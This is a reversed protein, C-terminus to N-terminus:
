NHPFTFLLYDTNVYTPHYTSVHIFYQLDFVSAELVGPMEFVKNPAKTLAVAYAHNSLTVFYHNSEHDIFQMFVM